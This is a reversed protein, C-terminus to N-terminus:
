EQAWKMNNQKGKSIYREIQSISFEKIELAQEHFKKYWSITESIVEDMSYLNKWELELSAKSSNIVLKEEEFYEESDKILDFGLETDWKQLIIEVIQKVSLSEENHSPGFNWAQDFQEPNSYMKAALWMIGAVPELVYQWPRISKPNRIMINNNNILAKVSDPIIRNKAWDGGGLINGARVTSIEVRDNEGNFFSDRFSSIVLEAAGKSASYPDSGGMPDTEIHPRTEIRNSYCKDSTMIVASKVSSNRISQLLNATGIVNIEFTELPKEYSERVLPQAALHFVLEPKHEDIISSLKEKDRLDSIINIIGKKIDLINFLSPDTPPELSYGIVNADLQKLWLTLWSGIFGTHGTVLVTKNQFVGNFIQKSMVLSELRTKGNGM